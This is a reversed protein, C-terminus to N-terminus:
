EKKQTPKISSVLAKAQNLNNLEIFMESLKEIDDDTLGKNILENIQDLTNEIKEDFNFKVRDYIIQQSLNTM